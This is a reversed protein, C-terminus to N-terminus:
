IQFLFFFFVQSLLPPVAGLTVLVGLLLGLFFIEAGTGLALVGYGSVMLGMVASLSLELQALFLSLTVSLKQVSNSTCSLEPLCIGAFSSPSGIIRVFM